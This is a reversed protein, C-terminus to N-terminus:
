FIPHCITVNENRFVSLHATKQPTECSCLCIVVYSGQSQIQGMHQQKGGDTLGDQARLMAKM